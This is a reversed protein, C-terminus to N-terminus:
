RCSQGGWQHPCPLFREGAMMSGSSLMQRRTAALAPRAEAAIEDPAPHDGREAAHHVVTTQLMVVGPHPTLVLDTAVASSKL